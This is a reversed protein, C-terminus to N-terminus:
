SKQNRHTQFFTLFDAPHLSLFQSKPCFPLLPFTSKFSALLFTELVCQSVHELLTQPFTLRPYLSRYYYDKSFLRENVTLSSDFWLSLCAEKLATVARYWSSCAPHHSPFVVQILHWSAQIRIQTRISIKHSSAPCTVGPYKLITPLFWLHRFSQNSESKLIEM